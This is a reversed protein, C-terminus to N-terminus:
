KDEVIVFEADDITNSWGDDEFIWINGSASGEIKLNPQELKNPYYWLRVNPKADDNVTFTLKYNAYGAGSNILEKKYHYQRESSNNNISNANSAPSLLRGDLTASHVVELESKGQEYQPLFVTIELKDPDFWDDDWSARVTPRFFVGRMTAQETVFDHNSKVGWYSRKLWIEEPRDAAKDAKWACYIVGIVAIVGLAVWGMPGFAILGTIATKATVGLVGMAAGAGISAVAGTAGLASAGARWAASDKDGAKYSSIAKGGDQIAGLSSSLAGLLIASRLAINAKFARASNELAPAKRIGKSSFEFHKIGIESLAFIGSSFGSLSSGLSVLAQGKNKTTFLHTLNKHIDFVTIFAIAGGAKDSALFKYTSSLPNQAPNYYTHVLREPVTFTKAGAKVKRWSVIEVSKTKVNLNKHQIQEVEDIVMQKIKDTSAGKRKSKPLRRDNTTTEWSLVYENAITESMSNIVPEVVQSLRSTLTARLMFAKGSYVPVTANQILVPKAMLALASLTQVSNPNFGWESSKNLANLFSDSVNLPKQIHEWLKKDGKAIAKWYVSDNPAKLLLAEIQKKGTENLNLSSHMLLINQEYAYANFVYTLDTHWVQKEHYGDYFHLVNHINVYSPNKSDIWVLQDKIMKDIPQTINSLDQHYKSIAANLGSENVRLHKLLRQKEERFDARVNAAVRSMNSRFRNPHVQGRGVQGNVLYEQKQKIRAEIIFLVDLLVDM